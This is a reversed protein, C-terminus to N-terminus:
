KVNYVKSLAYLPFDRCDYFYTFNITREVKERNSAHLVIHVIHVQSVLFALFFPTRISAVARVM